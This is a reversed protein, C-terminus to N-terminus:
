IGFFLTHTHTHSNQNLDVNDDDDNIIINIIIMNGLRRFKKFFEMSLFSETIRKNM